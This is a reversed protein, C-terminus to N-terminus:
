LTAVEKLADLLAPPGKMELTVPGGEPEWELSFRLTTCCKQEFRIFETLQALNEPTDAFKLRLSEPGPIISDISEFLGARLSGIREAQAKHSLKCSPILDRGGPATNELTKAAASGTEMPMGAESWEKLGGPYHSVQTYGQETLAKAAGKWAGCLPGGCYAVIPASRDMPLGQPLKAALSEFDLAGPIHGEAYSESGNADVLTIAGTKLKESLEARTIAPYTAKGQVHSARAGCCLKEVHSCGAFFPIPLLAWFRARMRKKM